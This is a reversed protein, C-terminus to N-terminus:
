LVEKSETPNQKQRALPRVNRMGDGGRQKISVLQWKTDSFENGRLWIEFSLAAMFLYGNRSFGVLALELERCFEVPDIFGYAAARSSKLWKELLPRDRALKLFISEGFWGKSRRVRIPEPLIGRLGRRLISRTEEPRIKQELPIALLFEALQRDLYPYRVEVPARMMPGEVLAASTRMIGLYHRQQAVSWFRRPLFGGRHLMRDRIHFNRKFSPDIWPLLAESPKRLAWMANPHFIPRY